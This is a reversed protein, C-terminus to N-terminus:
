PTPGGPQAHALWRELHHIDIGGAVFAPEDMLVRQLPATTHVGEVVMEDLAGRMRALAEARTRGSAIVKAILSDYHPPV